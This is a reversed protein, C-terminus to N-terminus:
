PLEDPVELGRRAFEQRLIQQMEDPWLRILGSIELEWRERLRRETEGPVMSITYALYDEKTVRVIGTITAM